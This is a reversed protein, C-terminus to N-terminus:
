KCWEKILERAKKLEEQRQEETIRIATGDGQQILGRPRSYVQLREKAVQCNKEKVAKAQEKEQQEKKAELRQQRLKDAKEMQLDIKQLAKESAEGISPEITESTKVDQPPPQQTYHTNGEEDVWKYIEYIKSCSTVYLISIM